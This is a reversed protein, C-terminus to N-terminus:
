RWVRVVGSAYRPRLGIQGPAFLRLPPATARENAMDAPVRMV